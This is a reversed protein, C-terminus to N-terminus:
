WYCGNEIQKAIEPMEKKDPRIWYSNLLAKYNYKYYNDNEWRAGWIGFLLQTMGALHIAKKGMRKVHAALPFGYAGCGIICIDFDSQNIQEKMVDLAEFWDKFQSNGGVSQIAKITILEFPPLVDSDAFLHERHKFQKEISDSFPHVVLVKKGKLARTWPQKIFFPGSVEATFLKCHKLKDILYVEEQRWSELVDLERIDNLMLECYLEIKKYTPPFFGANTHMYNLLKENWWWEPQEGKIFKIASHEQQRVGLYNIITALEFAGFRAIMCPKDSTLLQYIMDSAKDPNEERQLPPLKFGGLCKSYLKRLIKLVIILSNNM